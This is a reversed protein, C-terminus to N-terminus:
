YLDIDFILTANPPIGQTGKEGYALEPPILFTYISGEPMLQIGEQWGEIVRKLSFKVPEDENYSSDFIIGNMLMGRYHVSVKSRSSPRPGDGMTRIKYQLGSETRHVKGKIGNWYEMGPSNEASLLNSHALFALFLAFITIKKMSNGFQKATSIM